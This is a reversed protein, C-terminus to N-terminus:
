LSFRCCFCMQSYSLPQFFLQVYFFKPRINRTPVRSGVAELVSSCSEAGRSVNILFLADIHCRRVHLTQLNLKDFTDICHYGVHQFFRNHCFAAFKRQIRELKNPDTNMISNWFMSAYGLKSRVIAIYLMLFSGLTSFSFTILGLLKIIHSFLSDVHQHFHHNSDNLVGLDKICDTWLIFSNGIRYQYNFVTTKKSFSIVRIKSLNPKM